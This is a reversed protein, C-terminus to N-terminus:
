RQGYANLYFNRMIECDEASLPIAGGINAALLTAHASKECISAIKFTEKLSGSAALLGHNAMIVANREDLAEVVAEGLEKSGPLEYRAVRVEGGAVQILDECAAPIPKRAIAMATAYVSHTHLIAHIDPRAKYIELHMSLEISPKMNGDILNGELDLIPINEPILTNYDVGTPTIAVLDDEEIRVSINGWTGIVMADQLIKKGAEIIEKRAIQHKLSM